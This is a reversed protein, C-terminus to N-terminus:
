MRLGAQIHGQLSTGCGLSQAAARWDAFESRIRKICTSARRTSLGFEGAAAAANELSGQYGQPSIRMQHRGGDRGGCPELDFAPMLRLDRGNWGFLHNLPHDDTNGLVINFVMREFWRLGIDSPRGLRRLLEALAPYSGDLDLSGEPVQLLTRASLVHDRSGDPRRDFRAVLLVAHGRVRQTRFEPVDIGCRRAMELGFAELLPFDDLTDMASVFKAIWLQGQADVFDAKPRRGGVSPGHALAYRYQAPVEGAQEINAVAEALDTLRDLPLVGGYGSEPAETRTTSFGFAGLRAPGVERLSELAGPPRGMKKAMVYEGWRGPAVDAFPLPLHDGPLPELWQESLGAALPFDPALSLANGRGVYHRGYAFAASGDARPQLLGCLAPMPDGPPFIWVYLPDM